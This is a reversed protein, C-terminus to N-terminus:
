NLPNSQQKNCHVTHECRLKVIAIVASKRSCCLLTDSKFSKGVNHSESIFLVCHYQSAHRYLSWTHLLITEQGTVISVHLCSSYSISSELNNTLTFSTSADFVPVSVPQEFDIHNNGAVNPWRGHLIFAVFLPGSSISVLSYTQLWIAREFWGHTDM